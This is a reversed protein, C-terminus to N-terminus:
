LAKSAEVAVRLVAAFAPGLFERTRRMKPSEGLFEVGESTIRINSGRGGTM